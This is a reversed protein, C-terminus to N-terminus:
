ARVEAVVWSPPVFCVHVVFVRPILSSSSIGVQLRCFMFPLLYCRLTCSLSPGSLVLVGPGSM